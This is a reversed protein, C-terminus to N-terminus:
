RPGRAEPRLGRPLDIDDRTDDRPTDRPGSARPAPSAGGMLGLWRLESETLPAALSARFWEDSEPKPRRAPPAIEPLSPMLESFQTELAANDHVIAATRALLELTEARRSTPPEDLHALTSAGLVLSWACFTRYGRDSAPLAELYELAGCADGRLSALLEARDPVLFRGAAEDEHQDNLINVKQLFMGFQYALATRPAPEGRGLAWLKTLMEGVLGAVFSGYRNVDELDVARLPRPRRAYAAMGEAMRDVAGFITARVGIPLAYAEELLALTDGALARECAATGVPFAEGFDAVERESPAVRLFGRLRAFQREQVERDAFPADEVTDLVRLLLYALAVRERFPPELQPICLAFSRSVADLREQYFAYPRM